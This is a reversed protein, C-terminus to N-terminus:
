RSQAPLCRLAHLEGRITLDGASYPILVTSGRAVPTQSGATELTATGDLVILVSYQAPLVTSETVVIDEAQFFPDADPPFLTATGGSNPQAKRHYRAIDHATLRRRDFCQLSLEPSMGLQGDRRDALGFDRWELVVSFDTPEQLEVIFVGASIAHPTGAPVFIADGTRVPIRNMSALIESGNQHAFWTELESSEVDRNFGLYVHPDAGPTGVIVWAETKGFPCALHADAFARDPHCHVPLREGADLLKVLLAPNAGFRAVHDPGFFAAPDATVADGLLQGDALRTPGRSSGAPSGYLSVTSAVWDEPGFAPAAGQGSLPSGSTQHSRFAEIQAGGQYFQPPQNAPLSVPEM